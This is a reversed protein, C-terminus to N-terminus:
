GRTARPPHDEVVGAHTVLGADRDWYHLHFGPPEVTWRVGRGPALDLAFQHATSPCTTCVTGAWRRTMARHVHGCVVREVQPHRAITAAFGDAGRMPLADMHEIGTRFPPHHVFVLTPKDRASALARDLWDLRRQCMVGEILGPESSDLGILRLAFGDDVYHCFAPDQRLASQEPFVRRMAERDDHNGPILRIPMRLRDIISRLRSYEEDSGADVLDGTLLVVDPLPELANLRDVARALHAASDLSGYVLRGELKIHPDTLQAVIMTM